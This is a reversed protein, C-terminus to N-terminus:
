LTKIYAVLDNLDADSVLSGMPPMANSGNKVQERLTAEDHTHQKGNFDHPPKKFWEKLGPGVKTTESAAEHCILCNTEFVVKGKAADQASVPGVFFALLGVMGLYGAGKWVNM